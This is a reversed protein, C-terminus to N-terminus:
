KKELYLYELAKNVINFFELSLADKDVSMKQIFEKNKRFSKSLLKRDTEDTDINYLFNAFYVILDKKNHVDNNLWPGQPSCDIFRDFDKECYRPQLGLIPNVLLTTASNMFNVYTGLKIQQSETMINYDTGFTIIDNIANRLIPIEQEIKRIRENLEVLALEYSRKDRKAVKLFINELKKKDSRAKWFLFVSSVIAIGAITWGVPGALGLIASGASMGGGGAGLAGGGLWALAANTQAIGTLSAISTGTSAVGFTTAIGMAVTPGFFAVGVGAATAAAGGGVNAKQADKYDENIKDVHQKWKICVEKDKNYTRLKDSPINRIADFKNQISILVEYLSEDQKGLENIKLNTQNALQFVEDTAIKLESKKTSM